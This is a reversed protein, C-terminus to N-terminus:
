DTVQEWEGNIKIKTIGEVPISRYQGIGMDFTTILGKAAADYAKEGGKLYSTVNQRCVMDRLSGDSRKKFTLSYIKGGRDNIWAVADARTM